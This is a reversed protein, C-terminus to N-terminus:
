AFLRQLDTLMHTRPYHCQIIPTGLISALEVKVYIPLSDNDPAHTILFQMNHYNILSPKLIM